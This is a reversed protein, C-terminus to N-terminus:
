SVDEVGRKVVPTVVVGCVVWEETDPSVGGGENVVVGPSPPTNSSLLISRSLSVSSM